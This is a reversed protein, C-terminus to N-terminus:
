LAGVWLGSLGSKVTATAEGAPLGATAAATLLAPVVADVTLRGARVHGAATFAAWNLVHNRTGAPAEAVKRAIGGLLGGPVAGRQPPTARRHDERPLYDPKGTRIPLQELPWDALEGRWDSLWEYRGGSAHGSPPAVVYGGRGRLDLGRGWVSSGCNLGPQWRFYLHLGGGGTRATVTAPLPGLAALSTAGASGDVDLVALGSQEGTRIAINADPWHTWLRGVHAPDATAAYFGRPPLPRKGRCPLVPWGHDAYAVAIDLLSRPPNTWVRDDHTAITRM